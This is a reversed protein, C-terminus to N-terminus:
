QKSMKFILFPNKTSDVPTYEFRNKCERFLNLMPSYMCTAGKSLIPNDDSVSVCTSFGLRKYYDVLGRQTSPKPSLAQLLLISELSDDIMNLIWCLIIHGIGKFYSEEEDSLPCDKRVDVYFGEMFYQLKNPANPNIPSGSNTQNKESYIEFNQDVKYLSIKVLENTNDCIEEEIAESNFTKEYDKGFHISVKMHNKDVKVNADLLNLDQYKGSKDYLNFIM